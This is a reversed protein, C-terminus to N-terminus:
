GIWDEHKQEGWRKWQEALRKASWKGFMLWAFRNNKHWGSWLFMARLIMRKRNNM